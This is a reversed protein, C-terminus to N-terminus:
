LLATRPFYAPLIVDRELDTVKAGSTAATNASESATFVARRESIVRARADTEVGKASLKDSRAAASGDAQTQGNVARFFAPVCPKNGDVCPKNGDVCPKNGDVCPKNEDVCPKNEDVCPKNEDVRPKNEDVRPKDEDVRPKDEDVRPKDEDVRPKPANKVPPNAAARM